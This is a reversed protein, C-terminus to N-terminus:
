FKFNLKINNWGLMISYNLWFLGSTYTSFFNGSPLYPIYFAILFFAASLSYINKNNKYNKFFIFISFLYFILFSLYGILGTESLMQFHVQHPHTAWRQNNRKHDLNDYREHSSEMRFNKIGVGTFPYNKFIEKAVNYHAGYQTDYLFSKLNGSSFIQDYFRTKYNTNVNILIIILGSVFLIFLLKLNSSITRHFILFIVVIFLTKIFNSREGIVFSLFVFLISFAIVFFINKKFNENIYSLAFLIFSVYYAGIVLEDGTFSSIRGPMYSKNNVTNFGFYFEFVVDFSVVFFIICWFKFINNIKQPFEDIIKKFGLVFFIILFFKLVKPYTLDINHSFILNIIYSFFLFILIYFIPNKLEDNFRNKISLFLSFLGILITFFNVLSNGILFSIPYFYFLYYIINLTNPSKLFINKLGKTM